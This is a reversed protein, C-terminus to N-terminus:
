KVTIVTGNKVVIKHGNMPYEGDGLKKLQKQPTSCIDKRIKQIDIGKVRELYRIVAHDTVKIEKNNQLGDIKKQKKKLKKNIERLGKDVNKEHKNLHQIQNELEKTKRQWEITEQVTKNSINEKNKQKLKNKIENRKRKDWNKSEILNERKQKLQSIDNRLNKIQSM